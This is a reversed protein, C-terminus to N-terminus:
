DHAWMEERATLTLKTLETLSNQGNGVQMYGKSIGFESYTLLLSVLSVQPLWRPISVRYISSTTM